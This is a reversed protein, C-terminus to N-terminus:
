SDARAGVLALGLLSLLGAGSVYLGVLALGGRAALASAAIPALAGGLIGAANFAVSAGTYRVRAPFLSPLWTGLPGYVLGMVVLALALFVFTSGLSEPRFLPGMLLGVPVAALTGAVLVARPSRADSWVGAVVIGAALFLVAGLQMGLFTSRPVRLATTAYGLAFATAIYFIAFCATAALTASLTTVAHDRFLAAVPIREPAERELAAAFAPTETLRLRVWLGLLVLAASAFFPVRWGWRAFDEPSLAVGLALFLGNAALFGIPAGLQPSSGFRGAYGPPANEVALLAAGGWEGGLGLGQLVRMTCLLAPAVWGATAYTPLLAIAFTAGGMLVLSAVLTSKRGVRDGFHGFLVSGLPRAVFAIGFSAYSALLQLAPEHAPFFLPGFVLAAATAYIYFDYFEIATGIMAAGLVRRVKPDAFPSPLPPARRADM